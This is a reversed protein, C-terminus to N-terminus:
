KLGSTNRSAKGIYLCVVVVTRESKCHVAFSPNLLAGLRFHCSALTTKAGGATYIYWSSSPIGNGHLPLYLPGNTMRSFSRWGPASTPPRLSASIPLLGSLFLQSRRQPDGVQGGVPQVPGSIAQGGTTPHILPGFHLSPHNPLLHGSARCFGLPLVLLCSLRVIWGWNPRCGEALCPM